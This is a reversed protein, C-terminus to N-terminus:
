ALADGGPMRLLHSRHWRNVPNLIPSPASYARAPVKLQRLRRASSVLADDLASVHYAVNLFLERPLVGKIKPLGAARLADRIVTVCSRRLFSFDRYRHPNREDVPTAHIVELESRLQTMLPGTDLGEIRLEHITRMFRRGFKDYYPRRHDNANFGGTLPHPSFEGMAPRYMFEEVTMKEDEVLLHSFNFVRGDVNIAIHGFTSAVYGTLRENYYLLVYPSPPPPESPSLLLIPTGSVYDCQALQHVRVAQGAWHLLYGPWISRSDTWRHGDPEEIYAGDGHERLTGETLFIPDNMSTVPVGCGDPIDAIPM